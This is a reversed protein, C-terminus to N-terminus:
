KGQYCQPCGTPNKSVHNNPRVKFDGHHPCTVIVKLNKNSDGFGDDTVKDYSYRDGHIKKARVKFLQAKSVAAKLTPRIGKVFWTKFYIRYDVDDQDTAYLYLHGNEIKFYNDTLRFRKCYRKAQIRHETTITM